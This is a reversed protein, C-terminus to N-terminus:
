AAKALNRDYAGTGLQNLLTFHSKIAGFFTKHQYYPIGYETATQEVIGAIQPYHVHCIHPFLHHEIQHNLGGICWAFFTSNKAFNATTRLQHIAWNNEVSCDEDVKYFNTEELVHATQFILALLMGCIFHMLLFGLIIQSAPLAIFKLPLGIFLVFYWAKHFLIGALATWFNLGQDALLGRKNFKYLQEFDKILYWYITLICYLIPAYFVQFRFISKHDQTPSFRMVGKDIDEDFDQINTYSHHLVNHQIKWNVHYGGVLNIIYGVMRNVMPKSSYAGHIADHMVSTGIGSMGFGMITWMAITPWFGTVVGTLMLALPTLYVVLMVITKFIMKANGQKSIKNEKFYQNVRRNLEKFFEPQDKKNFRVTRGKM